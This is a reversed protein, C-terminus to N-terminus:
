DLSRLTDMQRRATDVAQRAGANKPDFALINQWLALAEEMRGRRYEAIGSDMMREACSRIDELLQERSRKVQASLAPTRPYAEVVLRYIKGAGSLEGRSRLADAVDVAGNIVFPYDDAFTVEEAGGRVARRIAALAAPPNEKPLRPRVVAPPRPPPPPRKRVEAARPLLKAPAHEPPPSEFVIVGCGSLLLPLLLFTRPLRRLM